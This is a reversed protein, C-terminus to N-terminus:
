QHVNAKRMKLVGSLILWVIGAIGFAAVTTEPILNTLPAPASATGLDVTTAAGWVNTYEAKM